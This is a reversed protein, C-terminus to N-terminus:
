RVVILADLATAGDDKAHVMLPNIDIEAIEPVAQMLQGIALVVQAVADVDAPPAGRVGALLKAARLRGLAAVIEAADASAPLVQVDGLAEVWIGGLGLLLVTGWGPDRKAGVMLEIGRPSMTEVLAGDLKMDPAARQVNRMTKDWAARLATEDALNLAVAGAETKHSLAAAQAKLVVPYGIKKALAAADDVTRALAGDPIRIGAAALVKKGLWEPQAGKALKPLEAISAGATSPGKRALLRGYRTYSAIARLMRDSSRSFVAPGENVAAMVDDGLEWTDGLAVMVKPKPSHAMGENFARIPLPTNIPFSIFLMGVNPDDILAKTVAPLMAPTFGATTDLPNGYNGYAPLTEGITKLTAADLEPLDLAIDEAFDNTLGVYAGSATLVGVGKTPPTPFRQLIAILDMAEDMTGVVIAGAEEALTRVTAYDGVLAGTHSQAAKRAKVSRGALMLVVPKGAARARRLAALFAQPRRIEECYAMIVRTAADDVLFEIFDITELGCENGTSIVYSVPVGRGDCARQFHGLLGGSQGVIAVGDSIGRAAARAYIMHLMLGDVNNTVGLCNPGVIALGAARATAAVADQTAYDGTEAFGAAFVMASGVKRRASAQMAEPVAAAPLTFVALDVGEPLEDPSKLVARGDIPADSRGVLFVDGAFNNVKLCQLIIQGASGPRTSIGIIAVSRPRLFRAVAKPGRADEAGSM